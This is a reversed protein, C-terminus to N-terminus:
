WRGRSTGCPSQALPQRNRDVLQDQGDQLKQPDLQALMADLDHGLEVCRKWAHLAVADLHLLRDQIEDHIGDLRHVLRRGTSQADM